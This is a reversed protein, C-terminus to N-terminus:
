SRSPEDNHTDTGESRRPAKRQGAYEFNTWAFEGLIQMAFQDRVYAADEPADYTGLWHEVGDVKIRAAFGRRRKVVGKYGTLNRSNPGYNNCNMQNTAERLNARRNDLTDGNWHEAVGIPERGLKRALVIRHM